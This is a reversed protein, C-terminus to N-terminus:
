ALLPSLSLVILIFFRKEEEEEKGEEGHNHKENATIQEWKWSCTLM